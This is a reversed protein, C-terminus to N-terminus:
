KKKKSELEIASAKKIISSTLENMIKSQIPSTVCQNDKDCKKQHVLVRLSDSRIENSLFNITIKLYTNSNLSDSYWDTIIVGGSYDVTTLPIFDLLELSARWMSNSTAFEYTSSKNGGLNKLSIGRGEQVNKKAREIGSTPTERADTYKYIGCSNLTFFCILIIIFKIKYYFKYM